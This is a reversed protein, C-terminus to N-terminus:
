STRVCALWTSAARSCGHAQPQKQVVMRRPSGLIHACLGAVHESRPQLRLVEAARLEGEASCGVSRSGCSSGSRRVGPGATGAGGQGAGPLARPTAGPLDCIPAARLSCILAGPLDCVPQLLSLVPLVRVPECGGCRSSCTPAPAASRSPRHSAGSTWRLCGRALPSRRQGRGRAAQGGCARPPQWGRGCRRRRRSSHRM